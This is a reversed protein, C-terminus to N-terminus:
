VDPEDAFGAEFATVPRGLRRTLAELVVKQYKAMPRAGSLWHSVASEDYKLKYGAETGARNVARAFEGNSAWRCEAVLAALRGNPTRERAAM